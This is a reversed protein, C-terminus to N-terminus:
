LDCMTGSLLLRRSTPTGQDNDSGDKINMTIKEDKQALSRARQAKLVIHMHALLTSSWGNRAGSAILRNELDLLDQGADVITKAYAGDRPPPRTDVVM